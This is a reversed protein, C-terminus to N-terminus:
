TRRVHLGRARMRGSRSYAAAQTHTNVCRHASVIGMDAVWRRSAGGDAPNNERWEVSFILLCTCFLLLSEALFAFANRFAGKNRVRFALSFAFGSEFRGVPQCPPCGNGFVLGVQFRMPRLGVGDPVALNPESPLAQNQM